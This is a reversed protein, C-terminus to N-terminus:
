PINGLVLLLRDGGRVGLHTLFHAVRNSRAALEQFSIRIDPQAGTVDTIWLAPRAASVPDKALVGDFWDLAWNFHPERPWRFEAHARPYDTRYRLLLDRAERFSTM